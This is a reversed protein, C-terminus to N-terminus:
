ADKLCGLTPVGAEILWDAGYRLVESDLWVDEVPRRHPMRSAAADPVKPFATLDPPHRGDGQWGVRPEQGPFRVHPAFAGESRDIHVRFQVLDDSLCVCVTSDPNM